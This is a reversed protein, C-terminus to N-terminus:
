HFFKPRSYVGRILEIFFSGEGPLFKKLPSNQAISWFTGATLWACFVMPPLVMALNTPLALVGCFTGQKGIRSKDLTISAYLPARFYRQCAQLYRCIDGGRKSFGGARRRFRSNIRPPNKPPNWIPEQRARPPGPALRPGHQTCHSKWFGFNSSCPRTDWKRRHYSCSMATSKWRIGM